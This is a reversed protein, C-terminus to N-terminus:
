LRVLHERMKCKKFLFGSLIQDQIHCPVHVPSQPEEARTQAPPQHAGIRVSVGNVWM